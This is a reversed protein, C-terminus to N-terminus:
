GEVLLSDRDISCAAIPTRACQAMAHASDTVLCAPQCSTSLRFQGKTIRLKMDIM